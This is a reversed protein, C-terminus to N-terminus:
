LPSPASGEGKPPSDGLAARRRRQSVLCDARRRRQLFSLLSSPPGLLASSPVRQGAQGPRGRLPLFRGRRRPPDLLGLRGTIWASTLVPLRERRPKATAGEPQFVVSGATPDFGDARDAVELLLRHGDRGTRRRGFPDPVEGSRMRGDFRLVLADVDTGHLDFESVFLPEDLPSTM